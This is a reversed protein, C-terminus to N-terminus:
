SLDNPDNRLETDLVEDDMEAQRRQLDSEINEFIGNDEISQSFIKGSISRLFESVVESANDNHEAEKRKLKINVRRSINGDIDNLVDKYAKVLKLKADLSEPDSTDLELSVVSTQLKEALQERRDATKTFTHDLTAMDEDLLTTVIDTAISM